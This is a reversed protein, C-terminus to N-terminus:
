VRVRVTVCRHVCLCGVGIIGIICTSSSRVCVKRAGAVVENPCEFMARVQQMSCTALMVMSRAISYSTCAMVICKM